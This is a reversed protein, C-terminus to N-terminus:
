DLSRLELSYLDYHRRSGVVQPTSIHTPINSHITLDTTDTLIQQHDGGGIYLCM